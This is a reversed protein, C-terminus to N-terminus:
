EGTAGLLQKVAAELQADTGAATEGLPREVPLDVPRPHMEMDEGAATRVRWGPVRVTSGDILTESRTYIIWGATPQGVVKGLGLARYGETFDEADSLSSENTLLVTPLGLARQGLVQRAPFRYLGRPELTLYNRRTFVDLAYGNIFGGNNNRIDIVVGQKAQNDADLDLYLQDLSDASMDALHVYGLRNGSIRAVYARRRDVWGRYALGDITTLSVPKLMVKRTGAAGAIGIAVRQGVRNELLADLNDHPGIPKGDVSVIREGAVIRGEIAAPSLPVVESVVLGRGGEYAGRDFRLGLMGVRGQPLSGPGRRPRSIGSHSADLEGIMLGIVRRLEDPTRAGDVFPQYRARLAKWDRGNFAPDFFYRDLVSWAENFLIQKETAFDVDMEGSVAIAKPAPKELPTSVIRGGDLYVLTKGDATLAADIKPRDSASIQQAVPTETALEDLNYSYLNDQGKASARFVLTKGDSSIIPQEASLGLPLITARDRLGEWVIEVPPVAPRAPAPASKGAKKAIPLPRPPAKPADPADPAPDGPPKPKFLDRFVDEKYRPVHPLLDIRVIRSAESRQATDILLYKGDPSWAIRSMQGNGLFSVPRAEGGAAPVVHVNVFSRRDFLPFAIWRGDPSWVPRLGDEDTALTGTFLIRDTAPRGPTALTLLHLERDDKVYIISKGDPAYAPATAIGATTLPTEREAAVDYEALRRDLGRESVYAIRRSDPSWIVEREAGVSETIRQAAGGEKAPAAFIEGHGIVAVKQGDPSVSLRTFSGVGMHRKGETAPAGRLTIPVEAAKGTAPDYRWVAMGREFLIAKGDAAMTPFLLRGDTFRTLQTPEGGAVPVEWLNETGSRDSMFIIGAGGPRWMPWARKAGGALLKRYAGAGALPKLWIESEDIHSHGNRWWQSFSIGRAVIAITAGDPSPAAQYESLYDERSVEIPTGGEASVRYIDPTGGPDNAASAFYLWKGDASWSDLEENAEGWTLRTVAGSALDLLYINTGGGRTSTFAIRRGDPSYLPRAETAADTVLLHAPGGTAAVEWIDGGSAFAIMRGDPSAAPQTFAPTGAAPPTQAPLAASGLLAILATTLRGSLRM